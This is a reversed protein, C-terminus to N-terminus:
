QNTSVSLHYTFGGRCSAGNFITTRDGIDALDFLIILHLPPNVRFQAICRYNGM